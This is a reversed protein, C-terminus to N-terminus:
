TSAAGPLEDTAAISQGPALVKGTVASPRGGRGGANGIGVVADGVKVAPSNGLTATKLGAAHQLQLVAIDDAIDYGVVVAKYTHGNGVDTVKISTAGEVVHNNTLV